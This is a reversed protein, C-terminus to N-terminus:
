TFVPLQKFNDKDPQWRPQNDKDILRARVGQAYDPHNIIFRAAKLDAQFVEKLPRGQNHRLLKLTLALATPSRESLRQFVGRCLNDELSCLSLSAVINSLSEAGHFHNEVWKDMKKEAQTQSKSGTPFLKELERVAAAKDGPLEAANGVLASILEPIKKAAILYNAFGLRLCEEGPMEYGTLGLFEPYGAPCRDFMWGTAGVDPFFGIRTEPMAMRTRESAVVLDAAAALGLGGGMTVGDALVVVPKPFHHLRLNVEYEEAFFTLAPKEGEGQISKVLTKIDGGACFGKEGAGNIVVLKIAKSKEAFDLTQALQRIMELNLSNIIQPRNLTILLAAGDHETILSSHIRSDTKKM